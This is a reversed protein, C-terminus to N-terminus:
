LLEAGGEGGFGVSVPAGPGAVGHVAEECVLEWCPHSSSATPFLHSLCVQM